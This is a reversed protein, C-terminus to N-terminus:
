SSASIDLFPVGLLDPDVEIGLGVGDPLGM